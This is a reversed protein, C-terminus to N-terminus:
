LPRLPAANFISTSNKLNGEKNTSSSVEKLINNLSRLSNIKDGTEPSYLTKYMDSSINKMKKIRPLGGEFMSSSFTNNKVKKSFGPQTSQM